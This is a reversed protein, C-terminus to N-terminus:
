SVLAIMTAPTAACGPLVAFGLPLLPTCRSIPHRCLLYSRNANTNVVPGSHIHHGRRGTFEVPDAALILRDKSSLDHNGAGQNLPRRSVALWGAERPTLWGTFGILAPPEM